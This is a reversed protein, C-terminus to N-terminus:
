GTRTSHRHTTECSRKSRFGHQADTLISNREFYELSTRICSTNWSRPVFPLWRNHATIQPVVRTAKRLSPVVHAMKWDNPVTGADLSTQYIYTLAPALEASREKLLRAPISDPGTAKHPQINQLLKEVGPATITISDMADYPSPGKDPMSSLDEKTFVSKFQANLINAKTGSDSHILGDTSRLPAVGSSEQKKDKLFSWFKKPNTKLSWLM